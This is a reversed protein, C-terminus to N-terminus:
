SDDDHGTVLSKDHITHTSTLKRIAHVVTRASLAQNPM